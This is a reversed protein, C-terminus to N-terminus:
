ENSFFTSGFLNLFEDLGRSGGGEVYQLLECLFELRNWSWKPLMYTLNHLKLLFCVFFFFKQLCKRFNKPPYFFVSMRQIPKNVSSSEGNLSYKYKRKSLSNQWYECNIKGSKHVDCDHRVSAGHLVSCFRSSAFGLPWNIIMVCLFFSYVFM